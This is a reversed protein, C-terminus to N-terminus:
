NIGRNITDNGVRPTHHSRRYCESDGGGQIAEVVGLTKISGYEVKLITAVHERLFVM